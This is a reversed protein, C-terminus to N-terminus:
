ELENSETQEWPACAELPEGMMAEDTHPWPSLPEPHSDCSGMMDDVLGYIALLDGGSLIDSIEEKSRAAPYAVAAFVCMEGAATGDSVIGDGRWDRFHCAWHVGEGAELSFTERPFHLIPPTEWWENVFFPDPEVEHNSYRNLTACDAREHTHTSVLALQVDRDMACTRTAVRQGGPPVDLDGIADFVLSAVDVVDAPAMRQVNLAANIIVPKERLNLYHHEMVLVLPAVLPIGVGEPMTIRQNTRQSPFVPFASEMLGGLESCDHTGLGVGLQNEFAGEELFADLFSFQGLYVNMHHTNESTLSELENVWVLVEDAEPEVRVVTCKVTESQPEVRIPETSIQYGWEPPALDVTLDLVDPEADPEVTDCSALLLAALILASRIPV